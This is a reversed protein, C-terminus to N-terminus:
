VKHVVAGLLWNPLGADGGEREGKKREAKGEGDYGAWFSPSLSILILALGSSKTIRGVCGRSKDIPVKVARRRIRMRERKLECFDTSRMGRITYRLILTKLLVMSALAQCIKRTM